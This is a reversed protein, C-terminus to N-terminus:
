TGMRNEMRQLLAIECQKDSNTETMLDAMWVCFALCFSASSLTHGKWVGGSVEYEHELKECQNRREQVVAKTGGRVLQSAFLRAM